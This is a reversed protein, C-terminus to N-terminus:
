QMAMKRENKKFVIFYVAVPVVISQLIFLLFWLETDVGLVRVIEEPMTRFTFTRFKDTAILGLMQQEVIARRILEGFCVCFTLAFLVKNQWINSFVPMACLTILYLVWFLYKSQNNMPEYPGFITAIVIIVVVFWFAYLKTKENRFIGM